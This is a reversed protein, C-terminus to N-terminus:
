RGSFPVNPAAFTRLCALYPRSPMFNRLICKVFPRGIASGNLCCRGSYWGSISFLLGVMQPPVTADAFAIECTLWSALGLLIAALGGQRTAPKWYMGFALPVFSSVLTVKYANEVM